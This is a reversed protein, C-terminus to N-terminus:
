KAPQASFPDVLQVDSPSPSPSPSPSAPPAAPAPAVFPAPVAAPPSASSPAPGDGLAPASAGGEGRRVGEGRPSRPRDPDRVFRKTARKGRPESASREGAERATSADRTGSAEREDRGDRGDRADADTAAGVAGPEGGVVAGVPVPVRGAHEGAGAPSIPEVSLRRRGDAELGISAGSSEGGSAANSEGGSGSPAGRAAEDTKASTETAPASRTPQEPLALALTTAIAVAGGTAVGLWRWGGSRRWWGREPDRFWRRRPPSLAIMSESETIKRLQATLDAPRGAFYIRVVAYFLPRLSPGVAEALADAFQVVDAFRDEPEKALCRMVVERLKPSIHAPLPAPPDMAIMLSLEMISTAPFAKQGSVLEYLIAGLSWLDSRADVERSSRLQEPAMYHPSGIVSTTSTLNQKVETLKAIGFDLLKIRAEGDTSHALFLNAPKLDRHIIGRLHAEALGIAAEMVYAAAVEERLPGKEALLQELDCGDLLEMVLYPVGDELVSVDLVRCIHASTLQAAAQGERLFREVALPDALLEPLLVKLAVGQGLQLHTAALVTGMGGQALVRDVRYKGGVETGVLM